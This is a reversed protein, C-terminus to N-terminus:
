RSEHSHFSVIMGVAAARRSAHSAAVLVPSSPTAARSATRSRSSSSRSVGPATAAMSAAAARPSPTADAAASSPTNRTPSGTRQDVVVPVPSPAGLPSPYWRGDHRRERDREGVTRGALDLLARGHAVQRRLDPWSREGVRGQALMAEDAYVIAPHGAAHAADAHRLVQQTYNVQAGPFWRAGPMRDEALVATHPTPSAVGHFDWISQWFADLDRVSWQWLQDYDDFRLGRERELWRQYVALRPEPQPM